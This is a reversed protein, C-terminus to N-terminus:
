NGTPVKQVSDVILTDVPARAPRLLLGLQDRLGRVLAGEQDIAGRTDLVPKGTEADLIYRSLDLQFDYRGSLGTKDVVLRSTWPHGLQAALQQMSFDHFAYGYTDLYKLKPGDHAAANQLAPTQRALVLEFVPRERM